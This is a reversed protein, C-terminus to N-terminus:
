LLVDEPKLPTLASRPMRLFIGQLGFLFKVAVPGIHARAQLAGLALAEVVNGM